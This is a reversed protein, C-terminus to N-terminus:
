RRAAPLPAVHAAAWCSDATHCVELRALDDHLQELRAPALRPPSTACSTPTPACTTSSASATSTSSTPLPRTRMAEYHDPQRQGARPLRPRRRRHDPGHHEILAANRWDAPRSAACCRCCAAGTTPPSMPAGASRRFTKALDINESMADRERGAAVGPGAVVLPVHIDTDFATLKGPTLRYEGTHFGNDSSFVFYTNGAVGRPRAGGRVRGIM